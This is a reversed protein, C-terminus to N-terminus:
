GLIEDFRRDDINRGTVFTWVQSYRAPLKPASLYAATALAGAGEARIAHERWLYRMASAIEAESVAVAASTMRDLIALSLPPVVSVAAGDALTEAEDPAVPAGLARVYKCHTMPEVVVLDFAYGIGALYLATPVALSGIGLPVVIAAGERELLGSAVVEGIVSANGRFVSAGVGDLFCSGREDGGRRAAEKADEYTPWSADIRADLSEIARQKAAPTSSPMFVTARLGLSRAATACAMGFSGSSALTVHEVGKDRLEAVAVTAGRIKFAGISQATDDVIFLRGDQVIRIPRWDAGYTEAAEAAEAAFARVDWGPDLRPRGEAVVVM